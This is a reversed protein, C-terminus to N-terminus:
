FCFCVVIAFISIREYSCKKKKDLGGGKGGLYIMFDQTTVFGRGCEKRICYYQCILMSRTNSGRRSSLENGGGGEGEETSISYDLHLTDKAM